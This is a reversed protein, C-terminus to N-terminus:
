RSRPGPHDAVAAALRELEGITAARSPVPQGEGDNHTPARSTSFGM